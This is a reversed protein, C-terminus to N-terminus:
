FKKPLMSVLTKKPKKEVKCCSRMTEQKVSGTKTLWFFFLFCPSRLFEMHVQNVYKNTVQKTQHDIQRGDGM